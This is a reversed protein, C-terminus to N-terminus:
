MYISFIETNACTGTEAVIELEPSHAVGIECGRREEFQATTDKQASRYLGEKEGERCICSKGMNPLPWVKGSCKRELLNRNVSNLASAVTRSEFSIGLRWGGGM